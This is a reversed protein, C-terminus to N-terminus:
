LRFVDVSPLIKTGDGVFLNSSFDTKLQKRATEVDDADPERPFIEDRVVTSKLHSILAQDGDCAAKWDFPNDNKPTQNMSM